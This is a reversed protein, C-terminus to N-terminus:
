KGKKNNILYDVLMNKTKKDTRESTLVDKINAQNISPQTSLYIKRFMTIGDKSEKVSVRKDTQEHFDTGGRLVATTINIDGFAMQILSGGNPLPIRVYFGDGQIKKLIHHGCGSMFFMMLFLLFIKM